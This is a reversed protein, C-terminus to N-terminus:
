RSSWPIIGLGYGFMLPGPEPSPSITGNWGYWSGFQPTFPWPEICALEKGPSEKSM